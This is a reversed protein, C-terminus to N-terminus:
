VSVDITDTILVFVISLNLKISYDVFKSYSSRSEIGILKKTRKLERSYVSHLVRFQSDMM